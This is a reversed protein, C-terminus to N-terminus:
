RAALWAVVVAAVFQVARALGFVEGLYDVLPLVGGETRAYQWIGLQGLAVRRGDPRDRARDAAPLSLHEAAGVQLAVGVGLGTAAPSSSLGTTVTLSAM